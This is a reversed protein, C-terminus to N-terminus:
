VIRVYRNVLNSQNGQLLSTVELFRSCSSIATDVQDTEGCARCARASPGNTVIKRSKRLDPLNEPHYLGSGDCAISHLLSDSVYVLPGRSTVGQKNLYRSLRIRIRLNLRRLIHNCAPRPFAHSLIITEMSRAKLCKSGKHFPLTNAHVIYGIRILTTRCCLRLRHSM